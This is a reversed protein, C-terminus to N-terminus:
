TCKTIIDGGENTAVAFYQSNKIPFYINKEKSFAILFHDKTMIM